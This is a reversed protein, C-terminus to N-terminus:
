WTVTGDSHVKMDLSELISRMEEATIDNRSDLYRVIDANFENKDAKSSYISRYLIAKQGYDLNLGFIYNRTKKKDSGSITKGNADKDGKIDNIADMYTSYNEYGIVRSVGYKKPSEEALKFEEYSDYKEYGTLDIPEKRDTEGNILANKQETTLDDLNAVYDVKEALEMGKMGEQYKQYAKYGGVQLAIEYKEPNQMAFDFEDFSDYRDDYGTLDIPEKRDSQNNVLINKKDIPLDLSNIYDAKDSLKSLGKLGDRYDWYESIPIDVDIYEQIQKEKLPAQGRDFYERANKSAYQGFVGAQLKNLFTDEVPFRLNGSQTYSGSTPLDKDFMSLGQVTKRLQGGGMPMVGYYLPKSLEAFVSKWNKDVVDAYADPISADYPLASSIPIRGGGLLGGVFPIEDAVNSALDGIAGAVNDEEEDDGSLDRILEEIIGVPDFAADRGTLTSYLANYAYAGAFMKIYGMTLKALGESKMDQPADKFMYGYQNAVELQFATLTKILPNKSNFITPMNGRSRGAMVNEAFQDANKIAANESMGKSINDIYKSRWVVQSTFSDVGEMMLGVFKSTKDWGTKYLNEEARLRNTLYDSKRIMGDDKRISRITEGMAQLSRVPSVQMWSQTIPIFNTLASSVSGAVMNGTVRNSINTMTSYVKRNALKEVTRDLDSKKNALANTGDQLDQVFNHLPNGAEKYVLEIQEQAEDADYEENNRIAEIKDKIGQESHVYRIQNEFARRKQIDEIHYIWDLSGHVYTDLGKMFSYDTDDSTRRKNFSQWSRNPKFTETIGAIDTPIETNITKWNFLKALFGQKEETFHPFYGKRYPIEKMGQERLVSNVREILEDYTKRAEEIARDVKATNIHEKNKEYFKKVDEKTLETDPNHRLEGLMQIYADEAKTIKMDAYVQKIRASERKFEAENHNYKGQLEDYIADAKAIDRKGDTDRVVDRLNRRLTNTKYQIGMKKDVWTSTDGILDSAWNTLEKQKEQRQMATAYDSSKMKEMKKELDSIRKSYDADVSARLRKTREISRLIDNAAKTEKNKKSDYKAQLNEIKETFAEYSDSRNQINNNLETQVAQRQVEVREAVTKPEAPEESTQQAPAVAEKRQADREEAEEATLPAYDSRIPLSEETVPLSEKTPIDLAIDKGYVRYDGTKASQEGLSHRIDADLTPTANDANKFQNSDFAVAIQAKGNPLLDSEWETVFGDIGTTQKLIDYFEYASKYDRIAIGGMVEQIIAMDNSNMSLISTACEDLAKGMTTDYTDVYNSIWTDRMAEEVTDYDGDEVYQNAEAEATAKILKKLESKKITKNNSTAPRTINLYGTLRKDGYSETVEKADTFYIGYGEQTGNKGGELFPNFVTFDNTTGHYMVKLQGNEDRVKSDKFYEQQEKTLTRGKTDSLSYKINSSKKSSDSIIDKSSVNDSNAEPTPPPVANDYSSQSTDKKQTKYESLVWLKKYKNEPTAVVVYQIGDIEKSFKILKSHKGNKDSYASTTEPQGNENYVLEAKDYNNLVYGMLAVDRMDKMSQDHQGNEGHRKEIHKFTDTTSYIEYGSADFGVLNEVDAKIRETVDTIKVREFNKYGDRKFEEAKKIINEDAFLSYVTNIDKATNTAEKYAKEFARKVKELQVAEKTGTAVRYLYKIEEYIKKFINPKEVSLRNVFDSDTFLYEGILDATLENEIVAGDVDKYLEKLAEYRTDYEGKTTAYEKVVNQLETYLETGELVHTIEHGVVTNLIKKSDINLAINGDKLYGNVTKGELAFGTEKLKANNTFDFSVGKDASIKAIMDVFEHTRNTNNLIGSEAAKKIVEKQKEDYKMLDTEFVQGRRAKENYSESLKTGETIKLMESDLQSRIETKIQSESSNKLKEKLEELKNKLEAKRDTQEGTMEGIKMKNLDDYEKKLSDHEEQLKTEEDTMSKLKNYTEGGLVSEITDTDIYGRELKKLVDDYIESKEKQTLKKGNSERKSIEDKYVKDVVSYENTNLHTNKVESGGFVGGMFGGLLASYGVEEWNVKEDTGHVINKVVPDLVEQLGEELAESGIHGAYELLFRSAGNKVGSVANKIVKSTGGLNGIGGLMSQLTTEFVGITTAYIRAKGKDGFENLNQQYANGAATAGMLILGPVGGTAVSPAMNTGTSLADFGLQAVSNGLVKRGNDALDERVKGTLIQTATQPIYDDDGVVMNGFNKVGQKFQEAGAVIGLSIERGTKGKVAEFDEGAKRENLTEAIADLFEQAKDKGGTQYYYNYVAVEEDTMYDLAKEKYSSSTKGTDSGWAMAKSDIEKRINNKNNIYEYQLDNYNMGYKSGLKEWIGQSKTSVYGSKSTFDKNKKVSMLNTIKESTKLTGVTPKVQTTEKVPAIDNSVSQKKPTTTNKTVKGELSVSYAPSEKKKKKKTVIGDMGVYYDAM